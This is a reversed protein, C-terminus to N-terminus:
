MGPLMGASAAKMESENVREAKELADNTAILILDELEEKDLSTLEENISIANVKRNGTMDVTVKGNSAKGEVTITDLRAKTEEVKQQMEQLKKMMGNGGFM